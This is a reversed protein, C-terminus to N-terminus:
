LRGSTVLLSSPGFSRGEKQRRFRRLLLFRLGTVCLAVIILMGFVAPITRRFLLWVGFHELWIGDAELPMGYSNWHDRYWTLNKDGTASGLANLLTIHVLHYGTDRHLPRPPRTLHILDYASGDGLDYLPLIVRLARLGNQLLESARSNSLQSLDYLGLLAFMFGNLTYTPDPQTPYEEYFQREEKGDLNAFLSLTRAVGGQEVKRSFPLLAREATELYRADRTLISARTMVSIALGQTMASIWPKHITEDLNPYTFDFDHYWCGCEQTQHASIWIALRLFEERDKARGGDLFRDYAHLAFLSITTTNYSNGTRYNVYPIGQDDVFVRRELGVWSKSWFPYYGNATYPKFREEPFFSARAQGCLLSLLASFVAFGALKSILPNM